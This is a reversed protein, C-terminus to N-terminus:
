IKKKGKKEQRAQIFKINKATEGQQAAAAVSGLSLSLSLSFHLSSSLSLSLSLHTPAPRRSLLPVIGNPRISM